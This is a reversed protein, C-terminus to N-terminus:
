YNPMKGSFGISDPALFHSLFVEGDGYNAVVASGRSNLAIVRVDDRWFLVKRITPLAPVTWTFLAVVLATIGALYQLRNKWRIQYSKCASCVTASKPIAARCAICPVTESQEVVLEIKEPHDNGQRKQFRKNRAM